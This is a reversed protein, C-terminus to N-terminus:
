ALEYFAREEGRPERRGFRLTAVRVVECVARRVRGWSDGLLGSPQRNAHPTGAWEMCRERHPRVFTRRGGLCKACDVEIHRTMETCQAQCNPCVKGTILDCAHCQWYHLLAEWVSGQTCAAPCACPRPGYDIMAGQQNYRRGCGARQCHSPKRPKESSEDENDDNTHPFSDMYASYQRSRYPQYTSEGNSGYHYSM